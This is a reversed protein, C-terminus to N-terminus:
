GNCLARFVPDHGNVALCAQSAIGAARAFFGAGIMHRLKRCLAVVFHLHAGEAKVTQGPALLWGANIGAREIAGKIAISGLKTASFDKLSGGWIGIPTRVASVIYVEKM